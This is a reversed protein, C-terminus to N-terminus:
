AGGAAGAGRTRDWWRRYRVDELEMTGGHLEDSRTEGFRLRGLPRAAAAAWVENGDV